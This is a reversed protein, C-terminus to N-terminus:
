LGVFLQDSTLLETQLQLKLSANSTDVCTPECWEYVRIKHNSLSSETIKFMEMFVTIFQLLYQPMLQEERVCTCTLPSIVM